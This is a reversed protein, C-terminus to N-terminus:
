SPTVPARGYVRLRRDAKEVTMEAPGDFVEGDRSVRLPGQLSRVQVQEATWQEYARCHGLTGTLLALVLRPKAHPVDADVVRVDLLTDDLRGRWSPGFGSPHYRCNGFFVMWARRRLGNIELELPPCSRLVKALSVAAAPWKGIRGELKERAHVLDVYAGLSATNLFLEGAITGVDVAALTGQELADMADEVSELGIDRAFHNLTGAPVVLLPLDEELAVRAATVVSGDGGAVGIVEAGERARALGEAVDTSEVVEVDSLRERLAEAPSSSGAPGAEPNVVVRVGKGTPRAQEPDALAPHPRAAESPPVPWFRRTGMAVAGGVAMGVLVDGPYHAGTRVRSAGILAAMAGLPVAAGPLESAAGVTFAAASASHGSPFSSTRTRRHRVREKPVLLNDPRGRRFASKAPGNVLASTLALSLLGRTAARRGARGQTAALLGATVVWVASFDASRTVLEMARDTRPSHHRHALAYAVTDASHLVTRLRM